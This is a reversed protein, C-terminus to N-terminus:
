QAGSIRPVGPRMTPTTRSIRSWGILKYLIRAAVNGDWEDGRPGAVVEVLDFGVIKRGSRVVGEILAVAEFFSLGGPVPTGTHPCLKPDLGDIDISIYVLPPLLSVIEEVVSRWPRDEAALHAAYFATVRRRHEQQLLFESRGVDRLGVQVLKTVGSLDQLVNFMVSAHSWKHGQYADRLDAHADIQLVGLGPNLEAQAAISGYAVSHDGGIVGVLKGLVGWQTVTKQVAANVQAGYADLRAQSKRTKAAIRTSRNWAAIGTPPPLLAIGGECPTGTDPDFLEVQKSAALIAKPGTSAGSGYSVTADFPVPLLVVEAEDPTQKPLGYIGSNAKAESDIDFTM